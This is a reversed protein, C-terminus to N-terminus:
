SVYDIEQISAVETLRSSQAAIIAEPALHSTSLTMPRPLAEEKIWNVTFGESTKRRGAAFVSRFFRPAVGEFPEYQVPNPSGPPREQDEDDIDVEDEYLERALSKPYPEIYIVRALGAAIIHRTCMHYPFTTTYITGGGIALGRRAADCIAHMEAHVVRGFEILNGVRIDKFRNKHEGLILSQVIKEVDVDKVSPILGAEDKLFLLFEEIIDIKKVANYDRGTKFDRKDFGKQSPWYAGGGPMPVENCGRTVLDGQSDAIVAGIQRSLDASRLAIASAEFMHMEAQTPTEYPYSFVLTAFRRAKDELNGKTCIFYDALHFTDSLNQGLDTGLRKRDLKILKKAKERLSADDTTKHSRSIQRVLFEIRSTVDDFASVMVFKDGYIHRLLKVEDPHKLSNIIYCHNYLELDEHEIDCGISLLFKQRENRIISTILPVTVAGSNAKKRLVDAANMLLEVKRDFKATNIEHSVPKSCRAQILQSVRIKSSRYGFPTFADAIADSVSALDTGAPGALGVVIEPKPFQPDYHKM